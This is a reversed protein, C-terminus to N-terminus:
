LMCIDYEPSEVYAPEVPVTATDNPPPSVDVEVSVAPAFGDVVYPTPGVSLKVTATFPDAASPRGVPLTVTEFPVRPVRPVAARAVPVLQVDVPPVPLLTYVQLAVPVYVTGTVAAAPVYVSV